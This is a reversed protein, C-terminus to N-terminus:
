KNDNSLTIIEKENSFGHLLKIGGASRESKLLWVGSKEPPTLPGFDKNLDSNTDMYSAKDSPRELSIFSVENSIPNVEYSVTFEKGNWDAVEELYGSGETLNPRAAKADEVTSNLKVGFFGDPMREAKALQSADDSQTRGATQLCTAVSGEETLTKLINREQQQLDLYSWRPIIEEFICQCYANAYTEGYKKSEVITQECSLQAYKRSNSPWGQDSPANATSPAIPQNCGSALLMTLILAPTKMSERREISRIIFTQSTFPAYTAPDSAAM